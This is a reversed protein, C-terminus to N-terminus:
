GRQRQMIRARRMVIRSSAFAVASIPLLFLGAFLLIRM